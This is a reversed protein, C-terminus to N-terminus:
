ALRALATFKARDWAYHEVVEVTHGAARLSIGGLKDIEFEALAKKGHTVPVPERLLVRPHVAPDSSNYLSLGVQFEHCAKGSRRFVTGSPLEAAIRQSIAIPAGDSSTSRSCPESDVKGVFARAGVRLVEKSVEAVRAVQHM